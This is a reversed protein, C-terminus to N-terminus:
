ANELSANNSCAPTPIPTWAQELSLGTSVRTTPSDIRRLLKVANMYQGNSNFIWRHWAPQSPSHTDMFSMERSWNWFCNRSPHPAKAIGLVLPKMCTPLGKKKPFPHHQGNPDSSPCTKWILYSPTTKSSPSSFKEKGSNWGTVWPLNPRRKWHKNSTSTLVKWSSSKKRLLTRPWKLLLLHCCRTHATCNSSKKSPKWWTRQGSVPMTPPRPKCVIQPLLASQLGM